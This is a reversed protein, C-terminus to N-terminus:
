IEEHREEREYRRILERKEYIDGIGAKRYSDEIYDWSPFAAKMAREARIAYSAILLMHLDIENKMYASMASLLRYDGQPDKGGLEGRYYELDHHDHLCEDYVYGDRDLWYGYATMDSADGTERRRQVAIEDKDWYDIYTLVMPRDKYVSQLATDDGPVYVLDGKEFPTPVYIWISEFLDEAGSFRGSPFFIQGIQGERDLYGEICQDTDIWSGTVIILEDDREEAAAAMAKEYTSFVSESRRHGGIANDCLGYSYVMGPEGSVLLEAAAEEACIKERLAGFLSSRGYYRQIKEPLEIDPMEAMLERFAAHKQTLSLRRSDNILFASELADFRHGIRRCHEAVDRSNLYSYVEM